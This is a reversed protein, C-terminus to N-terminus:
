RTQLALFRDHWVGIAPVLSRSMQLVFKVLRFPIFIRIERNRVSLIDSLNHSEDVLTEIGSMQEDLIIQAIRDVLTEIRTTDLRPDPVLNLRFPGIRTRKRLLSFFDNRGGIVAGLRLVTGNAAIVLDECYRKQKAYESFGQEAEVSSILVVKTKTRKAEDVLLRTARLNISTSSLDSRSWAFHFVIEFKALDINESNGLNYHISDEPNRGAKVLRISADKLMENGELFELVDKGLGSSAGTFLILKSKEKM